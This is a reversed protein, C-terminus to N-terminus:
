RKTSFKFGIKDLLRTIENLEGEVLGRIHMALKIRRADIVYPRNSILDTM